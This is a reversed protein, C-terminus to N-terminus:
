SIKESAYVFRSLRGEAALSATITLFNQQAEYTRDGEIQRAAASRADRAARWKEAVEAMNATVNKCVLLRFGCEALVREDYDRPVFLFFGISSRVAIEANTLAGTVTIPDTFLLRGGPKLLRAWEAIVLPRDPLHNIADICTIADFRSDPFPLPETANVVCFEAREELHRESALLKATSIAQEHLDIGVVSCDTNTAMRLAPGGSGCGVDLLTKGKSLELWGLFMDQEQATLWSNQGIDEGFAEQRIQAYLETQFSGYNADYQSVAPRSKSEDARSM